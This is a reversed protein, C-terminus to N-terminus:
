TVTCTTSHTSIPGSPWASFIASYSVKAKRRSFTETSATLRYRASNSLDNSATLPEDRLRSGLVRHRKNCRAGRGRQYGHASRM